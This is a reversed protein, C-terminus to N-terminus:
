AESDRTGAHLSQGGGRCTAVHLEHSREQSCTMSWTGLGPERRTGNPDGTGDGQRAEGSPDEGARGGPDPAQTDRIADRTRERALWLPDVALDRGDDGSRNYTDIHVVPEACIRIPEADPHSTDAHIVPDTIGSYAGGSSAPMASITAVHDAGTRPMARSRKAESPGDPSPVGHSTALLPTGTM